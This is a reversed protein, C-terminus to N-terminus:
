FQAVASLGLSGVSEKNSEGEYKVSYSQGRLDAVLSFGKNIPYSYAAGLSFGVGTDSKISCGCIEESLTVEQKMVGLAGSFNLAGGGAPIAKSVGLFWLTSDLEISQDQTFGFAAYNDKSGTQESKALQLGGFVSLGDGLGKGISITTETRSFDDDSPVGDVEKSNWKASMSQRLGLDFFWGDATVYSGGLTFAGYTAEVDADAPDSSPSVYSVSALGARVRVTGEEALAFCPLAAIAATLSTLAALKKM